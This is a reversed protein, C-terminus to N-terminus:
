AVELARYRAEEQIVKELASMEKRVAPLKKSFWVTPGQQQYGDMDQLTQFGLFTPTYAIRLFIQEQPAGGVMIEASDQIDEPQRPFDFHEQGFLPIQPKMGYQDAMSSFYDYLALHCASMTGGYNCVRASPGVSSPSVSVTQVSMDHGAMRGINLYRDPNFHDCLCHHIVDYSM